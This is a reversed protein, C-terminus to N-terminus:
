NIRGTWQVLKQRNRFMFKDLEYGGTRTKVDIELILMEELDNKNM